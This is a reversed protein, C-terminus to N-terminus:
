SIYQEKVPKKDKNGNCTCNGGCGGCGGGCGGSCGGSCSHKKNQKQSAQLYIASYFMIVALFPLIIELKM